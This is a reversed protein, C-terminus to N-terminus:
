SFTTARAAACQDDGAGGNMVDNGSNGWMQDKGDGGDMTDDDAMGFMKDDGDGGTMVDKDPARVAMTTEKALLATNTAGLTVTFVSDDFDKDGGGKLDEFGIKVTGDLNDVTATVHKLKDGNLGMTGDDVSHFVASGYASKVM